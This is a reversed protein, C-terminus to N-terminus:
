FVVFYEWFDGVCVVMVEGYRCCVIFIGYIYSLYVIFMPYIYSLCVIFYGEGYIVYVYQM